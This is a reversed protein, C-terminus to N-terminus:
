SKDYRDTTRVDREETLLTESEFHRIDSTDRAFLTVLEERRSEGGPTVLLFNVRYAVSLIGPSVNVTEPFISSPHLLAASHEWSDTRRQSSQWEACHRSSYM